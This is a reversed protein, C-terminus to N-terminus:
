LEENAMIINSLNENVILGTEYIIRPLDNEEGTGVWANLTDLWSCMNDVKEMVVKVKRTAM